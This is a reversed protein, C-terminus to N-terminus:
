ADYQQHWSQASSAAADGREQEGRCGEEEAEEEGKGVEGTQGVSSSAMVSGAAAAAARSIELRQQESPYVSQRAM